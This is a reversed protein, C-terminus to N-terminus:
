FEGRKNVDFVPLGKLRWMRVVQPRDDFVGRVNWRGEVHKRFLEDKVVNDPRRDGQERMFLNDEDSHVGVHESIWGQTERRCRDTRGSMFVIRDGREALAKAVAVVEPHPTDAGVKLEEEGFWGRHGDNHALTGDLDFLWAWELGDTPSWPSPIFDKGKPEKEESRTVELKQWGAFRQAMGLIVAAGVSRGGAEARAKDRAVCEEAPTDVDIVLFGAGMEHALDAWPRSYRLRLNTDDVVVSKGGELLSKVAARQVHSLAQEQKFTLGTYKGWLAMRLEDRNVRARKEPDQGVWELAKTSKGSGPLGRTIILIRSM